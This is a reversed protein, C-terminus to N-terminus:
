GLGRWCSLSNFHRFKVCLLYLGLGAVLELNLDNDLWLAYAVSAEHITMWRSIIKTIINQQFTRIDLNIPAQGSQKARNAFFYLCVATDTM